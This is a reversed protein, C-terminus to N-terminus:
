SANKLAFMFVLHNVPKQTRSPGHTEDADAIAHTHLPSHALLHTQNVKRGKGNEKSPM